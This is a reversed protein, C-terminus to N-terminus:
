IECPPLLSSGFHANFDNQATVVALLAVVVGLLVFLIRRVTQLQAFVAAEAALM